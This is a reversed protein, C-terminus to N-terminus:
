KRTFITTKLISNKIGLDRREIGKLQQAKNKEDKAIDEDLVSCIPVIMDLLNKYVLYKSNAFRTASFTHLQKFTKNRELTETQLRAALNGWNFLSHASSCVENVTILWNFNEQKSVHKDVLGLQHLWDHSLPISEAPAGCLEELHHQVHRLVYVGDCAMSSIQSYKIGFKDLSQKINETLKIRSGGERLIPQGISVSELFNERDPNITMCAIFQRMFHKHAIEKFISM